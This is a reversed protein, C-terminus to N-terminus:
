AHLLALLNAASRDPRSWPALREVCTWVADRESPNPIEDRLIFWADSWHVASWASREGLLNFDPESALSTSESM